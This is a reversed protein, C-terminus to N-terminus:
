VTFHKFNCLSTGHNSLMVTSVAERKRCVGTSRELGRQGIDILRFTKNGSFILAVLM